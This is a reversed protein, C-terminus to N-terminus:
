QPKRTFLEVSALATGKDSGGIALVDGTALRTATLEARREVLQGADDFRGGSYREVQNTESGGVVLAETPGLAVVAHQVHPALTDSSTRLFARDQYTYAALTVAEAGDRGGVVLAGAAALPVALAKMRAAPLDGVKTWPSDGASPTGLWAQESVFGPPSKQGGAVLVAGSDLRVVTAHATNPGGAALTRVEGGSVDIIEAVDISKGRDDLGGVVLVTGDPLTAAGHGTRAASLQLETVTGQDPDYIEVSSLPGAGQGGILVVRSDVAVAVHHTRARRLTPGQVFRANLPDFIEVSSLPGGTAGRGGAVVLRGDPLLTTTHAARAESLGVALKAFRDVPTFFVGIQEPADSRLEFPRSSGGWVLSGDADFGEVRVVRHDGLPVPPLTVATGNWPARETVPDIDPGDVILVVETIQGSPKPDEPLTLAIEVAPATADTCATTLWLLATLM